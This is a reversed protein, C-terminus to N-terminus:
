KQIRQKVFYVPVPYVPVLRYGPFVLIRDTVRDTLWTESLCMVDIDYDSLTQQVADM